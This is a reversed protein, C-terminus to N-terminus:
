PLERAFFARLAERWDRMNDGVTLRLMAHDLASWHPRPAARNSQNTKIPIIDCKVGSLAVIERAFDYWSCVGNGTVHYIGWGSTLAILLMHHALDEAYTPNGLQDDVVELRGRERALRLITRVFNAGSAGYLWSTRVIYSRPCFSAVYREGMLKTAGYVTRPGPQDWEAYPIGGARDGSFVYDTSIQMLRAGAKAAAAAIGRAGLANIRLAEDRKEECADVQTLATLNIVVDPKARGISDMVADTDTVDLQEDGGPAFDVSILEADRYAEPLQGLDSRGQKLIGRLQSGLQGMAGGLWIKM